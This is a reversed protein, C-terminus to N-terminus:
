YQKPENAENDSNVNNIIDYTRNSYEITQQNM